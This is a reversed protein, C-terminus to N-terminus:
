YEFEYTIGVSAADASGNSGTASQNSSTGATAQLKLGKALDVQVVAQTGTGTVSQKAGVYVDRAVYRGAELSSGSGITLRDLGMAARVSELPNSMTPAVGALSALTAAIQAIELPGLSATRAGYLLYALVEDQPLTPTSSLTFKPKSATGTIALTATVDGATTTAAFNLSPDTLSGGDFGIQGSSFTLTQGAMSFDGRRLAFSGSPIPNAASGQVHVSGGMEANLGRGRIFVQQPADITLDLAINPGHAAVPAAGPGAVPAPPSAGAVRVNLTPVSVPLRDPVRIDARRVFVRGAATLSGALTGRLTLDADINATLLDNALPRADHVTLTLDLPRGPAALDLSGSADITGAGAKAAFRTLRLAGGDAAVGANIAEIDIGRPFDRFSGDILQMGGNVRPAASTGTITADV